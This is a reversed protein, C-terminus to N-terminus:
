LSWIRRVFSTPIQAANETEFQPFVVGMCLALSALAFAMLIITGLSVVTMFGSVQLLLNTISVIGVALIVLPLTGVWFKAWLLDRM